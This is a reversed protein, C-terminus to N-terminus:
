EYHALLSKLKLGSFSIDKYSAKAISPIDVVELTNLIVRDYADFYKIWWTNMCSTANIMCNGYVTSLMTVEGIDLQAELSTLEDDNICSATLNIVFPEDSASFQEGRQNLEAILAYKDFSDSNQLIIDLSLTQGFKEQSPKEPSECSPKRSRNRSPLEFSKDFSEKNKLAYCKSLIASPFTAIELYDAGVKGLHNFHKIRWVGAMVSQHVEIHNIDGSNLQVTAKIDGTEFIEDIFERSLTNLAGLDFQNYKSEENFMLLAHHINKLLSLGDKIANKDRLYPADPYLFTDNSVPLKFLKPKRGTVKKPAYGSSSLITKVPITKHVQMTVRM